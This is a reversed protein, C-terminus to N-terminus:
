TASHVQRSTADFGCLHRLRYAGQGLAIRHRLHVTPRAPCPGGGDGEASRRTSLSAISATMRRRAGCTRSRCSARVLSCSRCTRATMPCPRCISGTAPSSSAAPFPSACAAIPPAPDGLARAYIKQRIAVPGAPMMTDVYMGTMKLKHMDLLKTGALECRVRGGPERVLIMAVPLFAPPLDLPDIERRHPLRGLTRCLGRWHEYVSRLLPDPIAAPFPASGDM